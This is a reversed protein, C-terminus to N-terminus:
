ETIDLPENEVAEVAPLDLMDRVYEQLSEDPQLIGSGVLGTIMDVIQKKDTAELSEFKLSPYRDTDFNLDVLQKIVFKDMTDCVYKAVAELAMLFYATQSEGLSRSGSATNGLELFQALINKV